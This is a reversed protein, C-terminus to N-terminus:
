SDQTTVAEEQQRKRGDVKTSILFMTLSCCFTLALCEISRVMSNGAYFLYGM